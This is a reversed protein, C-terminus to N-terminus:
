KLYPLFEASMPPIRAWRALEKDGDVVLVTPIDGVEYFAGEALGDVNDIDFYVIEADFKEKEKFYSLKNYVEKCVPCTQRGFIFVKKM